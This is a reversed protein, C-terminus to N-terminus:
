KFSDVEIRLGLDSKATDDVPEPDLRPVESRDPATVATALPDPTVGDFNVYKSSLWLRWCCMVVDALGKFSTFRISHRSLISCMVCSVKWVNESTWFNSAFKQRCFCSAVATFHCTFFSSFTDVLQYCISNKWTVNWRNKSNIMQRDNKFKCFTPFRTLLYM